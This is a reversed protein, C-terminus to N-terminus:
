LGRLMEFPHLRLLRRAPLLCGLFTIALAAAVALPISLPRISVGSGFLSLSLWRALLAGAGAGMLGGAVGLLGAEAMLLGVVAVNGSGLAKLLGFELRRELVGATLASAVALAAGLAAMLALLTMLTSVRNLIKGESDAVRRVVRVKSGPLARGIEYAISSVFPTCSWKEFEQPPLEQPNKGLREYVANEPTTLASVPIRSIKGTLGTVRWAAELPVLIADEEDTGGRLIGTVTFPLSGGDATVELKSGPVLALRAALRAGVLAPPSGQPIQGPDLDEPWSGQVSWTPNLSKMGTLFREGSALRAQRAFWTGLLPATGRSVKVRAELVPAFALVNNKWFNDKVKLLDDATLYSPLRLRTVDEGAVRVEKSGQSPVVVLNAGFSKLERSMKDGVDLAMDALAAAVTTGLTVAALVVVKRRKQRLLSDGLIRLFM